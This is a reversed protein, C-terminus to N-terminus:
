PLFRDGPSLRAGRMFDDADMSGKGARQVTKIAVAGTGCAITLGPGIIEGPAGDGAVAAAHLFKLREPRGAIEISAHAGPFPSLGHIHNRVADSPESFDLAAEAKQIKRAYTAGDPAQPTFTITGRAMAGLARGMLDAGLRALTETLDGATDGPAIPVREEMAVPGTDLGEEMKMVSVGTQADGAMIARAVPAAGRWRPLLSAHVNLAGYEATQLVDKPLILGYAVVVLAEPSLAAIEEAEGALSKPHRVDLALNDAAEHVASKREDMGRGAPRPPQTYVAAVEHGQGVIEMLTPVAFSPTGMFVLRM